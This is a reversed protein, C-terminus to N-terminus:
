ELQVNLMVGRERLAEELGGIPLYSLLAVRELPAKGWLLHAEALEDCIWEYDNGFVGGGVLTLVLANRGNARAALYAGQYAARLALRAAREACKHRKNLRGELGQALNVAAAFVQDVRQGKPAPETQHTRVDRHGSTVECCRHYAVKCLGLEHEDALTPSVSGMEAGLVAYGNEVTCPMRAQVRGLLEVQRTATQRWQLPCVSPEHFPALTRAIAAAGASISAAPGQTLDNVYNTCFSAGDPAVGQGVAEVGNHNSAVQFVANHWKPSAQLHAVDVARRNQSGPARTILLLPIATTLTSATAAMEKEVSMMEGLGLERFQGAQTTGGTLQNRIMLFSPQSTVEGPAASSSPSCRSLREKVSAYETDPVGEQVIHRFETADLMRLEPETVGVLRMFWQRVDFPMDRTTALRKLATRQWIRFLVPSWTLSIAVFAIVSNPVRWGSLSM